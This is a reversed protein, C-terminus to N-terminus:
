LMVEVLEQVTPIRKYGANVWLQKNVEENDTRLTRNCPKGSITPVITIDSRNYCQRIMGLLDYKTVDNSPIVHQVTLGDIPTQMIGLCLNAFAKTTIGNWLHDTYGNVTAGIPQQRLWEVLFKGRGEPEPGIISCRLHIIGPAEGLAKTMGYADTGDKPSSETYEGDRGSYVCDTAIQIVRCQQAGVFNDLHRQYEDNAHKAADALRFPFTGNVQIAQYVEAANDDHVHPKTLGICNICWECGHLLKRLAWTDITDAPCEQRTIARVDMGAERLIRTVMSGLMGTSGLVAVRM